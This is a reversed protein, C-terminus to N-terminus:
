VLPRPWIWVKKLLTSFSHKKASKAQKQCSFTWFNNKQLSGKSATYVDEPLVVSIIFSQKSALYSFIMYFVHKHVQFQLMQWYLDEDLSMFVFNKLSYFFSVGDERYPYRESSVCGKLVGHKHFHKLQMETKCENHPCTIIREPCNKEHLVIDDDDLNMIVECGLASFKCKHGVMQNDEPSSSSSASSKSCSSPCSKVRIKCTQCIIHGSECHQIPLQVRSIKYCITCRLSDEVNCISEAM